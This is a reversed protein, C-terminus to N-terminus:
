VVCSGVPFSISGYLFFGYSGGVNNAMTTPTTTGRSSPQQRRRREQSRSALLQLLLRLYITSGGLLSGALGPQASQLRSLSVLAECELPSHEANSTGPPTEIGSSCTSCLASRMCIACRLHPASADLDCPQLCQRHCLPDHM